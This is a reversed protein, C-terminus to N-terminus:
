ELGFLSRQAEKGALRDRLLHPLLPYDEACNEILADLATLMTHTSFTGLIGVQTSPRPDGDESTDGRKRVAILVGEGETEHNVVEGTQLNTLVITVKVHDAQEDPQGKMIEEM